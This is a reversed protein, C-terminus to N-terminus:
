MVAKNETIFDRGIVYCNNQYGGGSLSRSSFGSGPMDGAESHTPKHASGSGSSLIKGHPFVCVAAHACSVSLM